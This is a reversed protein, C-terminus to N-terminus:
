TYFTAELHELTLAYNLTTIDDVSNKATPAVYDSTQSRVVPLTLPTSTACSITFASINAYIQSPPAPYETVDPFPVLGVLENLVAAHRGEVTAITAAVEQYTPSTIANLGGDYARVGTNSFLDSYQVFSVVNTIGTFDYQCVPVPTGGLSLITNRIFSM